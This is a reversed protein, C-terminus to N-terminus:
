AQQAREELADALAPLAIGETGAPVLDDAGFAAALQADVIVDLLTAVGALAIFDDAEQRGGSSFAAGREPSSAPPM